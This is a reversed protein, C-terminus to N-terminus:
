TLHMLLQFGSSHMEFMYFRSNAFIHQPINSQFHLKYTRQAWTDCSTVSDIKDDTLHMSVNPIISEKLSDNKLKKDQPFPVRSVITCTKQHHLLFWLAVGPLVHFSWLSLTIKETCIIALLWSIKSLRVVQQLLVCGNAEVTLM